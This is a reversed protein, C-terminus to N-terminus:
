NRNPRVFMAPTCALSSGLVMGSGKSAVLITAMVPYPGVENWSRRESSSRRISPELTLSTDDRPQGASHPHAMTSTCPGCGTESPVPSVCVGGSGRTCAKALAWACPSSKRWYRSCWGGEADICGRRLESGLAGLMAPPACRDLRAPITVSALPVGSNARAPCFM